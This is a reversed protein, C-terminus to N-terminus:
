ARKARSTKKGRQTRMPDPANRALVDNVRTQWGAGTAKYAALIDRSLRLSVREKAADGLAPRGPGRKFAAVVDPMETKLPKSRAFDAKTLEPAEDPDFTKTRRAM